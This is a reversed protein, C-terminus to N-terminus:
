RELVFRLHGDHEGDRAFGLREMVRISPTNGPKVRATVARVGPQELAWGALLRVSETALGAGRAAVTLAYGVEVEGSPGPPGHFGADGVARGDSRRVIVYALFPGLVLGGHDADLIKRLVDLVPAMPFGEAWPRGPLPRGALMARALEADIPEVRVHPGELTPGLV